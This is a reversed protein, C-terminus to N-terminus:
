IGVPGEEKSIQNIKETGYGLNLSTANVMETFLLSEPAWKRILKRFIKDTVGALPSQIVSSKIERSVGKGEILLSSHM